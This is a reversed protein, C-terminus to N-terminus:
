VTRRGSVAHIIALLVGIGLLVWGINLALSGVGGFGLAVAILGILFLTIASSIM